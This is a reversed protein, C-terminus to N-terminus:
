KKLEERAERKVEHNWEKDLTRKRRVQWDQKSSTRTNTKKHTHEM